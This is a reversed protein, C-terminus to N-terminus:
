VKAQSHTILTKTVLLHRSEALITVNRVTAADLLPLSCIRANAVYERVGAAEHGSVCRADALRAPQRRSLEGTALNENTVNKINFM